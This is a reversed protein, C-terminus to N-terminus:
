YREEKETYIISFDNYDLQYKQIFYRIWYFIDKRSYNAQVYLNNNVKTQSKSKREKSFLVRTGYKYKYEEEAM